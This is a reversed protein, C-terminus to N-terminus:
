CPQSKKVQSWADLALRLAALAASPPCRDPPRGHQVCDAFYQLQATYGDEQPLPSLPVPKGAQSARLTPNSHNSYEIVGGDCVIRFGMKLSDGEPLLFGAEAYAIRDDPYQLVSVVESVLGTATCLGRATLHTPAGLYWTAVDLDHIHLDVPVGGSQEPVLLWGGASWQPVPNLRYASLARVRGLEGSDLLKKAAVYEPWFRLVHAVMFIVGARDCASVMAKADEVCLAMPKECLVHKGAAAAEETFLRHWPTPLGIVVADIEPDALLERYNTYTKPIDYETAFRGASAETRSYVAEVRVDPLNRASAAHTGSIFGTGLIALRVM